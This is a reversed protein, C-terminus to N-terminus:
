GGGAPWYAEAAHVVQCAESGRAVATSLVTEDIKADGSPTFERPKWGYKQQLCYQIHKRSNPNFTVERKKIFPEGKVYGLKKNNM